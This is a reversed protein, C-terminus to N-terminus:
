GLHYSCFAVCINQQPWLRVFFPLPAVSIIRTENADGAHDNAYMMKSCSNRFTYADNSINGSVPELARACIFAEGVSKFLTLLVIIHFLFEM